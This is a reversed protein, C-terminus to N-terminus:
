LPKAAGAVPAPDRDLLVYQRAHAFRPLARLARRVVALIELADPLCAHALSPTARRPPPSHAELVGAVQEPKGFARDDRHGVRESAARSAARASQRARGSVSGLRWGSSAATSADDDHVGVFVCASRM